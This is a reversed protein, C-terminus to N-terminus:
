VATVPVVAQAGHLKQSQPIIVVHLGSASVTQTVLEGVALMLEDRVAVDVALPPGDGVEEPETDDDEM